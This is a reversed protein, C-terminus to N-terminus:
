SRMEPLSRALGFQRRIQMGEAVPILCGQQNSVGDIEVLCEFCSGIMCLPARPQDGIVTRRYTGGALLVAAAVTDGRRVRLVVGDVTVEIEPRSDAGAPKLWRGGTGAAGPRQEDKVSMEFPGM